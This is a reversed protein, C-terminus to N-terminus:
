AHGAQRNLAPTGTPLNIVRRVAELVDGTLNLVQVPDMSSTLSQRYEVYKYTLERLRAADVAVLEPSAGHEM